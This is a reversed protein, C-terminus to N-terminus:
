RFCCWREECCDREMWRSQRDRKANVHFSARSVDDKTKPRADVSPASSILLLLIIFVPLCPM